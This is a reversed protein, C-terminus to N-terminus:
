AQEGSLVVTCNGGTLTTIRARWYARAPEDFVFPALGTVLNGTAPTSMAPAWNPTDRVPDNTSREIIATVATATGAFQVVIGADTSQFNQPTTSGPAAFLETYQIITDGSNAKLSIKEVLGPM